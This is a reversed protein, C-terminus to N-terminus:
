LNTNLISWGQSSQCKCIYESVACFPSINPLTMVTLRWYTKNNGRVILFISTSKTTYKIFKHVKFNPNNLCQTSLNGTGSKKKKKKKSSMGKVKTFALLSFIANLSAFSLFCVCVCVPVLHETYVFCPVSGLFTTTNARACCPRIIWLFAQCQTPWTCYACHSQGTFNRRHNGLVIFMKQYIHTDLTNQSSTLPQSNWTHREHQGNWPM